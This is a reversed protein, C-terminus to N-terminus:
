WEMVGSLLVLWLIIERSLEQRGTFYTTVPFLFLLKKANVALLKGESLTYLLHIARVTQCDLQVKLFIELQDSGM